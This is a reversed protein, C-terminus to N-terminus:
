TERVVTEEGFAFAHKDLLHGALYKAPQVMVFPTTRARPGLTVYPEPFPLLLSGPTLYPTYLPWGDFVGAIVLRHRDSLLWVQGPEVEHKPEGTTVDVLALLSGERPTLDERNEDDGEGPPLGIAPPLEDLDFGTASLLEDSLDRLQQGLLDADWTALEATRNDAISYARLVAPDTEELIVANLSDLGLRRAAEYTGNGAVIVRESTVVIPKVQGFRELSAMIAAVNREDHQRVNDPDPTLDDLAYTHLTATM